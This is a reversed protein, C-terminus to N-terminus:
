RNACLRRLIGEFRGDVYCSLEPTPDVRWSALQRHERGADVLQEVRHAVSLEFRLAGALRHVSLAGRGRRFLELSLGSRLALPELRDGLPRMMALQVCGFRLALALQVGGFRVELALQCGRFGTPGAGRVCPCRQVLDVRSQVHESPPAVRDCNPIAKELTM